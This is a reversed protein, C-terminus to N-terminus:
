DLGVGSELIEVSRVVLGERSEALLQLNVLWGSEGIVLARSKRKSLSDVLSAESVGMRAAAERADVMDVGCRVRRPARVGVGLSRSTMQPSKSKNTQNTTM